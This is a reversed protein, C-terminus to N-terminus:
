FKVISMSGQNRPLLGAHHTPARGGGPPAVQGGGAGRHGEVGRGPQPQHDRGHDTKNWLLKRKCYCQNKQVNFSVDEALSTDLKNRRVFAEFDDERRRSKHRKSKDSQLKPELSNESIIVCDINAFTDYHEIITSCSHGVSRTDPERKRWAPPRPSPSLISYSRLSPHNITKQHYM